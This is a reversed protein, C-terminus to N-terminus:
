IARRTPASSRASYRWRSPHSLDNATEACAAATRCTVFGYEANAHRRDNGLGYPPVKLGVALHSAKGKEAIWSARIESPFINISPPCSGSRMVRFLPHNATLLSKVM